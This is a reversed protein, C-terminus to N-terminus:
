VLDFKGVDTTLRVDAFSVEGLYGYCALMVTVSFIPKVSHYNLTRLSWPESEYQFKLRIIKHEGDITEVLALVGYFADNSQEILLEPSARASVFLDQIKLGSKFPVYQYIARITDQRCKTSYVKTYIYM